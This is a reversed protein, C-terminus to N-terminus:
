VLTIHWCSRMYKSPLPVNFHLCKCANESKLTLILYFSGSVITEFGWIVQPSQFLDVSALQKSPLFLYSSFTWITLIFYSSYQSPTAKCDANIQANSCFQSIAQNHPQQVFRAKNLYPTQSYLSLSSLIRLIGQHGRLSWWRAQANSSNWLKLWKIQVKLQSFASLPSQQSGLIDFTDVNLFYVVYKM